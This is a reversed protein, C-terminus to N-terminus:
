AKRETQRQGPAFGEATGLLSELPHRAVSCTRAQIQLLREWTEGENLLMTNKQWAVVTKGFVSWLGDAACVAGAQPGCGFRKM